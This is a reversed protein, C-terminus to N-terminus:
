PDFLGEDIKKKIRDSFKTDNCFNNILYILKKKSIFDSM